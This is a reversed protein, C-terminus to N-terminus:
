AHTEGQQITLSAEVDAVFRQFMRAFATDYKDHSAIQIVTGTEAPVFNVWMRRHRLFMTLFTGVTLLFFGIWVIITGPDRKVMMGTYQAERQYTVTLDSSEISENQDLVASAMPVDSGKAYVEVKVQGPELGIGTVGSAPTAVYIEHEPLIVTGYTVAGGQGSWELAVGADYVVQDTNKDVVTVVAAIGFYAQYFSVGSYTLPENVRVDQRAVEVGDRYIALDTVYDKPSGDDYYSDAFSKAEATLNTEYGVERPHGITLTFQDDRFGTLATVMFGAMIVVFAIHAVVTGFPAWWLRDLYFARTNGDGPELVRMKAAKAVKRVEEVAADVDQSVTVSDHFRARTYFARNVRLHPHFARKILLPLRHATCALISIALLVMVALYIFSSFMSFFGVSDLITAWGGYRGKASELWADNRVPDAAVGAPKQSILLGILSLITAALILVLGTFKNYFFAFVFGFLQKPSFRVDSALGDVPKNDQAM